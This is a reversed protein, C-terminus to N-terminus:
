RRERIDKRSRQRLAATLHRHASLTRNLRRGARISQPHAGGHRRITSEREITQQAVALRAHAVRHALDRLQMRHITTRDMTQEETSKGRYLTAEGPRAPPISKDSGATAGPPREAPQVIEQAGGETEWRAVTRHVEAIRAEYNEIEEAM